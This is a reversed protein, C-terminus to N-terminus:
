VGVFIQSWGGVGRETGFGGLYRRPSAYVTKLVNELNTQAGKVSTVNYSTAIAM